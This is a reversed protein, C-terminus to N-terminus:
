ELTMSLISGHLNIKKSGGKKSFEVGCYICKLDREKVADEVDKPIGWRNAM